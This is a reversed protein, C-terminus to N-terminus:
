FIRSQGGPIIEIVPLAEIDHNGIVGCTLEVGKIYREIILTDDHEFGKQIAAAIDKEEKVITMGVSSGACAPKIVMPLGIIRVVEPVFIEDTLGFTLYGPTPIKAGDYLQKACLKNM